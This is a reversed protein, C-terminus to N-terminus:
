LKDWSQAQRYTRAANWANVDVAQTEPASCFGSGGGYLYLTGLAIHDKHYYNGLKLIDAAIAAKLLEKTSDPLEVQPYGDSARGITLTQAVLHGVMEEATSTCNTTCAKQHAVLNAARAEDAAKDLQAQTTVAHERIVTVAQNYTNTNM